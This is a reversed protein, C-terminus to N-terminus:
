TKGQIELAKQYLAKKNEGSVDAVIAAAKKPPLEALLLRFLKDINVASDSQPNKNGAVMVVFEGKQQDSNANLQGIIQPLTGHYFSEFTKTLERAVCAERQEGFIEAM